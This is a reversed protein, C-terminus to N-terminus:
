FKGWYHSTRWGYEAFVLAATEKKMVNQIELEKIAKQAAFAAAIMREQPFRCYTKLINELGGTFKEALEKPSYHILEDFPTKWYDESGALQATKASLPLLEQVDAQEAVANCYCLMFENGLTNGMIYAEGSKTEAIMIQLLSALSYLLKKRDPVSDSVMGDLTNMVGQVCLRGCVSGLVAMLTTSHVGKDGKLTNSIYLYIEQAALKAGIMPDQARKLDVQHAINRLMPRSEDIEPIEDFTREKIVFDKITYPAYQQTFRQLFETGNITSDTKQGVAADEAKRSTETKNESAAVNKNKNFINFLM